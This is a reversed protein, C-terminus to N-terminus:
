AAAAAAIEEVVETPVAGNRGPVPVSRITEVIRSTIRYPDAQSDAPSVRPIRPLRGKVFAHPVRISAGRDAVGYSFTDIAQTEHLGTLRLHNDPATCLSTIRHRAEFTAMLAAFYSEGGEERM